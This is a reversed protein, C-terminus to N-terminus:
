YETWNIKNKIEDVEKNLTDVKNTLEVDTGTSGILLAVNNVYIYASYNEESQLLYIKNSSGIVPLSDVIEFLEIQPSEIEKLLKTVLSQTPIYEDQADQLKNSIEYYKYTSWLYDLQSQGPLRKDRM